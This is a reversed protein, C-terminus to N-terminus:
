LRLRSDGGGCWGGHVAVDVVGFVGFGFQNLHKAPHIGAESRRFTRSEALPQGIQAVDNGLPVGPRAKGLGRGRLQLFQDARRARELAGDLEALAHAGETVQFTRMVIQSEHTRSSKPGVPYM